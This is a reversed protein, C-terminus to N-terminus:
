GSLLIAMHALTASDNQFLEDRLEARRTSNHILVRSIYVMMRFLEAKDGAAGERCSMVAAFRYLAYVNCFNVYSKWLTEVSAPDPLHLQFLLSVVLNEFFYERDGFNQEFRERAAYYPALSLTGLDGSLSMGFCTILDEQIKQLEPNTTYFTRLMQFINMLLMAQLKEQEPEEPFGGSALTNAMARSRALWGPIDKEGDVLERLAMGMMLIRRALPFRRDQLFDICLERIDAYYRILSVDGVMTLKRWKEKPLPDSVFDVGEPLEWLLALVGECAPSLSREMYGSPLYKEDRPFIKCVWPLADSGKEAQLACLCDNRLLPCVGNPLNFEAYVNDDCRGDRIRHLARGLREALEPSADQQKMSLYDKKDFVINWGICCSLECGSALCHFRDYYTPRLDKDAIISWMENRKDGVM